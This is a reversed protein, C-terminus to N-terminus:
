FPFSERAALPVDSNQYRTVVGRLMADIGFIGQRLTIFLEEALRRPIQGCEALLMVPLAGHDAEDDVDDHARFAAVVKDPVGSLLDLIDEGTGRGVGSPNEPVEPIILSTAFHAPSQHGCAFFYTNYALTEPIPHAARVEDPDLGAEAFADAMLEGHGSEEAFFGELLNRQRRTLWHGLVAPATWNANRVMFYAELLFGISLRPDSTSRLESVLPNDKWARHATQRFDDILRYALYEANVLESRLEPHEVVVGEQILRRVIGAVDAGGAMRKLVSSLRSKAPARLDSLDDLSIASSFAVRVEFPGNGIRLVNDDSDVTCGPKLKPSACLDMIEKVGIEPVVDCAKVAVTTSLLSGVLAQLEVSM